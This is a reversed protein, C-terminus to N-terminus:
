RQIEPPLFNDDTNKVEALLLKARSKPSLLILMFNNGFLRTGYAMPIIMQRASARGLWGSFLIPRITTVSPAVASSSSDGSHCTKVNIMASLDFWKTEKATMSSSISNNINFDFQFSVQWVSWSIIIRWGSERSWVVYKCHLLPSSLRRHLPLPVHLPRLTPPNIYGM